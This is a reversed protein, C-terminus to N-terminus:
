FKKSIFRSDLIYFRLPLEAAQSIGIRGSIGIQPRCGDDAFVLSAEELGLGNLSLDLGMAQCINGPGAALRQKPAQNRRFAMEKLGFLPELARLLVAAPIDEADTTINYCLHVGYIRYLYHRGARGFMAANRPTMGRSSHCAPDDPGLYAETEVIRGGVQGKPGQWFFLKGLLEQAVLATPRAFFEWELIEM